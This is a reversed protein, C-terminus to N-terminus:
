IIIQVPIIFKYVFKYFLDDLDVLMPNFNSTSELKTKMNTKMYSVIENIKLNAEEKSKFLFRDPDTSHITYKLKKTIYEGNRHMITWGFKSDKYKDINMERIKEGFDRDLYTIASEIFNDSFFGTYFIDDAIGDRIATVMDGIRDTFKYDSEPNNLNPPMYFEKIGVDSIKTQLITSSNFENGNEDIFVIMENNDRLVKKTEFKKM